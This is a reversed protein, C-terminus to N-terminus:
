NISETRPRAWMNDGRDHLVADTDADGDGDTDGDMDADSDSDGDTDADGGPDPGEKEQSTKYCSLALLVSAWLLLAPLVSLTISEKM